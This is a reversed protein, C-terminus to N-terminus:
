RFEPDSGDDVSMGPEPKDHLHPDDINSIHVSMQRIMAALESEAKQVQVVELNAKGWGTQTMRLYYNEAAALEGQFSKNGSSHVWYNGPRLDLRAYSEFTLHTVEISGLYLPKTVRPDSSPDGAKKGKTCGSCLLRTLRDAPFYIFVHATDDSHQLQQVSDRDLLMDGDLYGTVLTGVPAAAQTGTQLVSVVLFAPMVLLNDFGKFGSPYPVGRASGQISRPSGRLPVSRNDALYLRDVGIALEGPRGVFGPKRSRTVKGLVAAGRPIIVLGEVTIPSVVQFSVDDGVKATESSLPAALSLRIPTGDRLIIDPKEAQSSLSQFAGSESTQAAPVTVPRGAGQLEQSEAISCAQAVIGYMVLMFLTHRLIGV